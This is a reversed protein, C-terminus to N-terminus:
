CRSSRRIPIISASRASRTSVPSTTNTPRTTATGRSSTSRRTISRPRGCRAWSNRCSTRRSTAIRSGRRRPSSIARSQRPRELRDTRSGAPAATAGHNEAVYGRATADLLEVRMRMGRPIVVIEGPAVQLRGCETAIHLRGQQPVILMEGDANWFVREMSRNARYVHVTVGTSIRMRRTPPSRHRTRRRFRDARRPDAAPGLAAPEADPEALAGGLLATRSRSTPQTRRPPASAISGLEAARGAHCPSHREPSSSPM